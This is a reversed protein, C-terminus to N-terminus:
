IPFMGPLTLVNPNLNLSEQSHSVVDSCLKISIWPSFCLMQTKSQTGLAYFTLAHSHYLVCGTLEYGLSMQTTATTRSFSVWLTDRFSQFLVMVAKWFGTYNLCGHLFFFFVRLFQVLKNFNIKSIYQTNRLLTFFKVYM